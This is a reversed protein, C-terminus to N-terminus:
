SAPTPGGAPRRRDARRRGPAGARDRADHQDHLGRGRRAARRPPAAEPPLSHRALRRAGARGRAHHRGPHGGVAAADDVAGEWVIFLNTSAGEALVGDSTSCCRSSRLRAGAGRARGPHQQAPQEVQDRPRAGAPPQPPRRGGRRRIGEDYHRAPYRALPKQIMVVTPGEIASSTTAATASAARCSSASTPSPRNPGPSRARRRQGLLEADSHPM